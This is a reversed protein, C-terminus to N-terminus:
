LAKLSKVSIHSLSSRLDVPICYKVSLASLAERDWMSSQMQFQFTLLEITLEDGKLQGQFYCSTGCTFQASDLRKVLLIHEVRPIGNIAQGKHLEHGIRVIIASSLPFGKMSKSIMNMTPGMSSCATSHCSTSTTEESM